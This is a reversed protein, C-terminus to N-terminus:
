EVASLQLLFLAVFYCHDFQTSRVTVAICRLVHCVLVSPGVHPDSLSTSYYSYDTIHCVNLPGPCPM